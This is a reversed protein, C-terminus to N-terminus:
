LLVKFYFSEPVCRFVSDANLETYRNDSVAEHSNIPYIGKNYFM